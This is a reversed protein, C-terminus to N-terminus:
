RQGADVAVHRPVRAVEKGDYNFTDTWLTTGSRENTLRTIVRITQGERQITGGLAYAPASGPAPASATSVGVVGDANFAASIEADVADRM